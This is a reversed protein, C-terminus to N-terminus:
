STDRHAGEVSSVRRAGFVTVAVSVAGMMLLIAIAPDFGGYFSAVARDENKDTGDAPETTHSGNAMETPTALRTRTSDGQIAFLSFGPTTARYVVKTETKHAVTTELREWESAEDDYHTLWVADNPIGAAELLAIEVSFVLKAPSDRLGRPVSVRFQTLQDGPPEVTNSPLRDLVSVTVNGPANRHFSITSVPVEDFSLLITGGHPSRSPMPQRYSALVMATGSRPEDDAMTAADADGSRDNGEATDRPGRYDPRNEPRSTPEAQGEDASESPESQTATPTETPTPTSTPTSTPTQTPTPTTTPKPTPTVTATTSAAPTATATEDTTESPTANPTQTSEQQLSVVPADGVTTSLYEAGGVAVSVDVGAQVTTVATTGGDTTANTGATTVVAVTAFSLVAMLCFLLVWAQNGAIPRSAM